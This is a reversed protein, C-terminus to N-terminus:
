RQGADPVQALERVTAAQFALYVFCVDRTLLLVRVAPPARCAGMLPFTRGLDELAALIQAHEREARELEDADGRARFAAIM